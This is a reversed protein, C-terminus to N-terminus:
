GFKQLRDKIEVLRLWHQYFLPLGVISEIFQFVYMILAFLAGYQVLGDNIAIIISCVLFAMLLVWSLSFNVTELDSLKINWKMLDHLHHGLRDDNEIVDVQEEIVDNYSKNLRVTRKSSVLYISFVLFSVGLSGYFVNINLTALIVIVGFLAIVSSVIEPLSNELFEIVEKLMGLRATKVSTGSNTKLVTQVGYKKFVKAYLRSDFFRRGAGIVLALLGLLGLQLGGRYMGALTDDIAFGIFLPFLISIGAELLILTFTFLFGWRYTAIIKRIKM